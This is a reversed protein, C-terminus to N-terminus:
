TSRSSTQLLARLHFGPVWLWSWLLLSKSCTRRVSPELQGKQLPHCVRQMAWSWLVQSCVFSAPGPGKPFLSAMTKVLHHCQGKSWAMENAFPALLLSPVTRPNSASSFSSTKEKVLHHGTQKPLSYLPAPLLPSLLRPGEILSKRKFYFCGLMEVREGSSEFAPKVLQLCEKFTCTGYVM